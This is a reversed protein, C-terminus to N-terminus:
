NLYLSNEQIMGYRKVFNTSNKWKFSHPRMGSPPIHIIVLEIDRVHTQYILNKYETRNPFRVRQIGYPSHWFPM